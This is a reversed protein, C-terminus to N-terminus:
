LEEIIIRNDKIKKKIQEARYSCIKYENKNDFRIVVAKTYDESSIEHREKIILSANTEKLTEFTTMFGIGTGGNDKHTTSPEIGLKGLTEIKFEIGSDYICLEYCENNIGLITLISKYNNNSSNIAIIADRIHDGILTVLKSQPIVKNVLHHINGNIQLAFNINNKKCEAQMYKFMDDIEEIETSQLRELGKISELGNSYEKSLKEITKIITLEPAAETNANSIFDNVKMELAQQRNYFEHNLKSIKFKEESLKKIKEDKDAIESKYDEITKALLKQKYYLTITKQIMILMIIGLIIFSVMLQKTLDGYYNGFLSYVLIVVASINMMIIDIYEYNKRNQLFSFGNKFRKIKSFALLIIAEITLIFLLNIVRNKVNLLIIIILELLMSTGFLIYVIANSILNIIFLPSKNDKVIIQLSILQISYMIIIMVMSDIYKEIVIYIVSTSISILIMKIFEIYRIKRNLIKFNIVLIYITIFFTKIAKIVLVENM